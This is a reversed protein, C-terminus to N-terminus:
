KREEAVVCIIANAISGTMGTKPWHINSYMFDTSLVIGIGMDKNSTHEVLDGIQIRKRM